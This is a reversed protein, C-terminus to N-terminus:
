KIITKVRQQEVDWETPTFIYEGALVVYGLVEMYLLAKKVTDDNIGNSVYLKAILEDKRVQKRSNVIGLIERVVEKRKDEMSKKNSM